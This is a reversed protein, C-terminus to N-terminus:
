AQATKQSTALRSRAALAHLRRVADRPRRADGVQPKAGVSTWGRHRQFEWIRRPVIIEAHSLGFMSPGGPPGNETRKGGRKEHSM